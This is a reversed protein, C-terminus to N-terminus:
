KGRRRRRGGAAGAKGRMGFSRVIKVVFMIGMCALAFIVPYAILANEMIMTVISSFLTWIWAAASTIGSTVATFGTQFAEM